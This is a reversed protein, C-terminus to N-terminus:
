RSESIVELSDRRVWHLGDNGSFLVQVEIGRKDVILGLIKDWLPLITDRDLVMVNGGFAAPNPEVLHGIDPKVRKM